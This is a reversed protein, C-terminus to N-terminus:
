DPAAPGRARRMALAIMGSGTAFLLQIIMQELAISRREAPGFVLAGLFFLGAALNLVAMAAFLYWYPRLIWLM